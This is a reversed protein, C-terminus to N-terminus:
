VIGTEYRQEELDIFGLPMCLFPKGFRDILDYHATSRPHAAHLEINKNTNTYWLQNIDNTMELVHAACDANVSCVKKYFGRDFLQLAALCKRKMREHSAAQRHEELDGPHVRPANSLLGRYLEVVEVDSKAGGRDMEDLQDRLLHYVIYPKVTENTM